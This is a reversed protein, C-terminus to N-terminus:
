SIRLIDNKIPFHYEELKTTISSFYAYDWVINRDERKFIWFNTYAHNIEWRIVVFSQLIM